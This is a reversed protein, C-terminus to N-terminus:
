RTGVYDNIFRAFRIEYCLETVSFQIQFFFFKENVKRLCTQRAFKRGPDRVSKGGM